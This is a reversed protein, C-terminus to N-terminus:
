RLLFIVAASVCAGLLGGGMAVALYRMTSRFVSGSKEPAIVRLWHEAESNIARAPIGSLNPKLYFVARDFYASDGIQLEVVSKSVGKLGNM